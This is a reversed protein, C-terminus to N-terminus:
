FQFMCAINFLGKKNQKGCDDVLIQIVNVHGGQITWDLASKGDTEEIVSIDAGLGILLKVIKAYGNTALADLLYRRGKTTCQRMSM